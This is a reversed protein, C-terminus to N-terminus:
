TSTANTQEGYRRKLEEIPSRSLFLSMVPIGRVLPQGEIAREFPTKMVEFEDEEADGEDADPGGLVTEEIITDGEDRKRQRQEEGLAIYQFWRGAKDEQGTKKDGEGKSSLEKEIERKAIEAISILKGAEAAKARLVSVRTKSTTTTPAAETSSPTTPPALHRLVASVRQQIKSSSIVSQLQVEYRAEIVSLVKTDDSSALCLSSTLCQRKNNTTSRETSSNSTDARKRKPAASQGGRSPSKPQQVEMM